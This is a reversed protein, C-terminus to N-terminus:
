NDDPIERWTNQVVGATGAVRVNDFANDKFVVNLGSSGSEWGGDGDIIVGGHIAATGRISVVIGSSSQCAGSAVNPVYVLGHFQINGGIDLTGCRLIFIGPSSATNCCETAGPASPTDNDYKCDGSEVFVVLGNPNAPCTSYYTDSASAYDELAQLEDASIAPEAPYEYDYLGAPQLQGKAPDYDLCGASQPERGELPVDTCRVGVGLSGTADVIVKRGNNSVQVWGGAIAYRPFVVQRFEVKILAVITRTRGRVTAEATVWLQNDGNADYWAAAAVAAGDYFTGTPNDRVRTSWTTNADFDSLVESDFSRALQEDSPCLVDASLNTCLEPFTNTATGTGLRGLVYTQAHLVGEALNFSSEHQRERKTVDTQTDVTSLATSGLMLMLTMMMVAIVLVNGDESRLRPILSM